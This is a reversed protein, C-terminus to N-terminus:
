LSSTTDKTLHTEIDVRCIPCHKNTVLWQDVCETHFLHMCPLRRVENDIEFLSLCIACKEADEDSESERRIRKYKHPLTNREIIELSAGRNPRMTPGFVIRSGIDEISRLSTLPARLGIELRVPTPLTYHHIMHHHVAPVHRQRPQTTPPPEFSSSLSVMQYAPDLSSVPGTRSHVCPCINQIQRSRYNPLSRNSSLDIPTPTLHRRHIEQMTQQRCWLNQHVLYPPPAGVQHHRHHTTGASFTPYRRQVRMQSVDRVFYPPYNSSETSHAAPPSCINARRPPPPQQQQQQQESSTESTSEPPPQPASPATTPAEPPINSNEHAPVAANPHPATTTSSAPGRLCQPESYGCFQVRPYMDPAVPDPYAYPPVDEHFRDRQCIGRYANIPMPFDPPSVTRLRPTRPQYPALRPPGVINGFVNPRIRNVNYRYGDYSRGNFATGSTSSAAASTSSVENFRRPYRYDYYSCAEAASAAAAAATAAAIPTSSTVETPTPTPPLNQHIHSLLGSTSTDRQPTIISPKFEDVMEDDNTLDISVIPERTSHVFVVDDDDGTSDSLWDLQLDPATLVDNSRSSSLCEEGNSPGHDSVEGVGGDLAETNIKPIKGIGGRYGIINYPLNEPKYQKRLNVVVVDDDDDDDDSDSMPNYKSNANLRHCNSNYANSKGATLNVDYQQSKRQLGSPGPLSSLEDYFSSSSASSATSQDTVVAAAITTTTAAAAATENLINRMNVDQEEQKDTHLDQLTKNLTKNSNFSSSSCTNGSNECGSASVHKMSLISSTSSSPGDIVDLSPVTTAALLPNPKTAAYMIATTATSSRENKRLGLDGPNNNSNAPPPLLPPSANSSGNSSCGSISSSSSIYMGDPNIETKVLNGNEVHPPLPAATAAVGAQEPQPNHLLHPPLSPTPQTQPQPPANTQSHQHPYIHNFHSLVPRRHSYTNVMGGLGDYDYASYTSWCSHQQPLPPNPYDLHNPVDDLMHNRPTDNLATSDNNNTNINNINGNFTQLEPQHSRSTIQYATDRAPDRPCNCSEPQCKRCSLWPDRSMLDVQYREQAGRRPPMRRQLHPSMLENHHVPYMQPMYPEPHMTNYQLRMPQRPSYQNYAFLDYNEDSPRPENDYSNSLSSASFAAEFIERFPLDHHEEHENEM